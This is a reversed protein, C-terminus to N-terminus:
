ARQIRGPLWVTFTTGEGAIGNSLIEIRGQHRRVIEKAISLGLGTGPVASERGAQGRFFREFVKEQEHSEIGPGTDSVSIGWQNAQQFVVVDIAGGTPTYNMANTLLISIVQGLLSEDALILPKEAESTFTLSLGNEAALLQRDEVYISVLLNLDIQTLNLDVHNQDLRSLYLLDEILNNLRHIERGLIDLYKEHRDPRSVMLKHYLMMNTIPTRLEHSVNSVFEDKVRSLAKLHENALQLEETRMAVREELEIAHRHIQDVLRTQQIAIALENAVERTIENLEDYFVARDAFGLTIFGLLNNQFLLPVLLVAHVELGILHSLQPWDQELASINDLWLSEGRYLAPLLEYVGRHHGLAFSTGPQLKVPHDSDAVSLTAELSDAEFMVVSVGLCPVLQRIHTVAAQAIEEISWAVLIAQDIEHLTSLRQVYRRLTEEALKRETIDHVVVLAQPKGDVWTVRTQFVGSLEKGDKRRLVYEVTEPITEHNLIQARRALFLQQGEESLLDLPSLALFEEKTYGVYECMVENVSLFRSDAYDLEYIGSPAYEVLLRYKEENARLAEQAQRHAQRMKAEHLEREVAPVLRTLNDKMLYDHAGSRMAEVAIEEGITGSVLIFPIDLNAAHYLKLAELGNFGPMSYDSIIIDWETGALAAQMESQTAVRQFELEYGGKRLLRLLLLADNESDEALLVRLPLSM